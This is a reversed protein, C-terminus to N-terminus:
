SNEEHKVRETKRRDNLHHEQKELYMLADIAEQFAEASIPDSPDYVRYGCSLDIKEKWGNKERINRIKIHVQNIKEEIVTADDIPSIVCFEDGGFRGIYDKQGFVEALVEAVEKVTKDGALHGYHDNIEKFHDVDMMIASFREGSVISQRIKEELRIDLGRRNLVGTLYDVNVDRSQLFFFLLLCGITIGAYTIDMNAIFIQLVVGIFSLVPLMIITNRYENLIHKRYVLVYVLLLAIFVMLFIARVMFLPGRYYVGDEFYYFLNLNMLKSIIVLIINVIAFVHFVVSFLKRSREEEKNMWCEIYTLAFLIDVPDLLYIVFYGVKALILLNDPHTEGVHGITEAVFLILTMVLLASYRRGTQISSTSSQFYLLLSLLLICFFNLVLWGEIIM